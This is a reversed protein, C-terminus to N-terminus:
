VPPLFIKVLAESTHEEHKFTFKSWDAWQLSQIRLAYYGLMSHLLYTTLWIYFYHHALSPTM